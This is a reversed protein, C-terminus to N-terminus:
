WGLTANAFNHTNDNLNQHVALICKPTSAVQFAFVFSGCLCSGTHKKKSWTSSHFHHSPILFNTRRTTATKSVLAVADSVFIVVRGLCVNCVEAMMFNTLIRLRVLRSIETRQETTM